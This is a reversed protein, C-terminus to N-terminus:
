VSDPHHPNFVSASSVTHPLNVFIKCRLILYKVSGSVCVGSLQSLVSLKLNFLWM